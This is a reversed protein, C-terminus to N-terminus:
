HRLVTKEAGNHRKKHLFPICSFFRTRHLLMVAKEAVETIKQTKKASKNASAFKNSKPYM